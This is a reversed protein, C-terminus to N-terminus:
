RKAGPYLLVDGSKPLMAKELVGAFITGRCSPCTEAVEQPINLRRKVKEIQKATAFHRGCERCKVLPLETGLEKMIRVGDIDEYHLAGTPCVFVCAGCGVCEEAAKGFPTSIARESGRGVYGIASQGVVEDCVRVCLGCLICDAPGAVDDRQPLRPRGVGYEAALDRIV